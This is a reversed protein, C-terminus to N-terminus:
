ARPRLYARPLLLNGTRASAVGVGWRGVPRREVQRQMLRGM